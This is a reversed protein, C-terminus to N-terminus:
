EEHEKAAPAAKPEGASPTSTTEVQVKTGDAISEDPRLVVQVDAALGSIIEARVGDDKGIQVRQKYIKGDKVVQVDGKGQTNRDLICSSPITLNPTDKELIIEGRGFMGDRLIHQPNPLDVEVRMTRDGIDESEAVRSVKGKFERNGMADIRIIAPDGPDCFPVDRDPIPIITRMVDDRAVTLLPEDGGKDPSQVFSGPHVSEGRFIVVGNYPSRIQTYEYLAEEKKLNAESVNVDAKAGELDANAQALLAEAEAVQAEATAVGAVAAHEQSLAVHYHDLEEDKLREEVARRSVLDSIRNYQKNRYEREATAAQVDARAKELFAMKAKITEQASKVKAEAQRVAANARVVAAHAQEVAAKLEPVFITALLEDKMVRSGRDVNLKELYGSVKAYLKAFEFARITGPQETKREMGGRQAEVVEVKPESASTEREPNGAGAVKEGSGGTHAKGSTAVYFAGIGGAIVILLVFLRLGWRPRKAAPRAPGKEARAVDAPETAVAVEDALM